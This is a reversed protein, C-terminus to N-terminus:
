KRYASIRLKYAVPTNKIQYKDMAQPGCSGNGIGRQYADLHLHIFPRKQLEWPHNTNMLDVDTFSLASFAVDGETRIEIGRGQANTMRLERIDTRNGMSQPKTNPVMMDDVTTAYRGKLCADDRDVYNEWPGRGYYEINGLAPCIACALGTRRLGEKQPIFQADVDIIGGPYITYTIATNCLSGNRSTTVVVNGLDTTVASCSGTPELGNGEYNIRDNEIWRFNDYEPGQGGYIVDLGDLRLSKIVGTAKDFTVCVAKNAVTLLAESDTVKLAEADTDVAVSALKGRENLTFQALALSHNAEAWRSANADIVDVDLLLEVGQSKAQAANAKQPLDITIVAKDDPKIAPLMLEGKAVVYGDAKAQWMLKMGETTIFDYTNQVEVFAKNGEPAIGQLRFKLYQYAAKVEVLKPTVERLATVVGNCCFNGQHPGPFDYGTRLRGQYSGDLIERPEYISQDVWDWIAGGITTSSSEISEWYERLNGIATGMSHAYECIFMPKEFSNVYKDMWEMSPYMKSYLDSFRNGGYEKGDRTSEHHVLRYDLRKAADYCAQFNNGGGNENGLSWFIISPHNRDRLIMREVRDVFAPIWSPMDSISQNAHDELDAEDMVYLGYYDFMAYMKAANPYHSTRITNVNNRKMLLVDELMSETDVARGLLPHTDHRNVGKFFVRQGNIYILSGRQEIERFGYKTSFAMEQKGDQSQVVRVTYLNPTEATWPKLNKLNFQVKAKAVPTQASYNIRVSKQAVLREADDYIKVVVDKKGKLRDRNDLSLNVTMSGATYGSAASLRSSIVHDRVSVKPVNYLYVDRFIGSMRFMDQCELYSGDCWRFVQVALRNRGPRLYKTLDFEAVNNAGQSYGVYEGNLYVLAASYIGGFHIFTRQQTWDAPLDFFRVYSGVPNIGYNAGGDNFGRRARIFPPTNGHPYEVNCYIPRDYGYMEWNSPVPIISWSSVDYDEAYFGVPRMSPEPVFNFYWDGNLLMASQSKTYAWPFAYHEADGTMADENPYPTFTAHGPEKNEAFRTEDEWIPQEGQNLNLGDDLTLHTAVIRFLAADSDAAKAADTMVVKSGQVAAAWKAHNSPVLQVSEGVRNALWLQMEDSGNTETMRASATDDARMSVGSYANSFRFSGSLESITWFQNKDAKDVSKLIVQGGTGDFGLVKDPHLVSVIQYIRRQDFRQQACVQLTIMVALLTLASNLLLNKKM